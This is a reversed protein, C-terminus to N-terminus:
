CCPWGSPSGSSGRSAGDALQGLLARAFAPPKDVLLLLVVTFLLLLGNVVSSLSLGHHDARKYAAKFTVLNDYAM